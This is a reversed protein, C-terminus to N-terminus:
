KTQVTHGRKDVNEKAAEKEKIEKSSKKNGKYYIIEEKTDTMQEKNKTDNKKRGNRSSSGYFTVKMREGHNTKLHRKKKKRYKYVVM